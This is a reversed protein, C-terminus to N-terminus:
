SWTGTASNTGSSSGSCSRPKTTAITDRHRPEGARRLRQPPQFDLSGRDPSRPQSPRPASINRPQRADLARRRLAGHEPVPLPRRELNQQRLRALKGHARRHARHRHRARRRHLLAMRVADTGYKETVVLPDIVNGSTKSMKQREADRVLGHIYVQRFPVEGMFEFGMMIMRAVWFFLIDFGTILLSTPYYTRSTTPRIPGASRPSRGSGPASGPISCTPSGAGSERIGCRPCTTPTERAVIIESCAQCHWAPIRHGWWLQRSICWDRINYMWEYYTKTWNDPIFEIRGTEVAEIAKEALPKTARVVAHLDAARGRDQLAACKGVNLKYDDVKELLASENSIARGRAQASRLPRPRCLTRRRRDHARQEDIVQIAASRPPPRSRFRQPDHAPTVKM